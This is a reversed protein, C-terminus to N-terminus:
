KVKETATKTCSIGSVGGSVMNLVVEVKGHEKSSQMSQLALRLSKTAEDFAKQNSESLV